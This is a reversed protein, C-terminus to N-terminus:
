LIPTLPRIFSANNHSLEPDVEPIYVGNEDAWHKIRDIYEIFKGVSLKTTSKGLKATSGDKRLVYRFNFEQKLLEHTDELDLHDKPNRVAKNYTEM